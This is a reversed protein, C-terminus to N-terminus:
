RQTNGQGPFDEALILAQQRVDESIACERQIAKLADPRPLSKSFLFEVLSAAERRVLLDPGQPATEWLMVESQRAARSKDAVQRSAAAALKTGDPSFAVDFYFDGRGRLTLIEQSTLLDWVRVADNMGASALRRGDPSFAVSRVSDLHGRLISISNRTAVDWIRVTFDESATALFRGDPSFSVRRVPEVHGELIGVERGAVVDWVRVKRDAGATALLSGDPSFAVDWVRETHGHLSQIVEGTSAQRIRVVGDEGATALQQGDPSFAVGWAPAVGGDLRLLHKKTITDWVVLEAPSTNPQQDARHSVSVLRLGDPSFAIAQVRSTHGCLTQTVRGARIDWMRIMQDAVAALRTGDPSFAVKLIQEAGRARLSHSEQSCTADWIKIDGKASASALRWGNPSFAVNLVPGTHGRLCLAECGTAADWIRVTNDDGASALQLGHPCFAAGRARNHGHLRWIMSGNAADWVALSGDMGATVLSRSDSSFSVGQVIDNHAKRSIEERGTNADWVKVRGDQGATAILRGDPSYAIGLICGQKAEWTLVPKRTELYWVRVTGDGGTAALRRGDPSFAVSRITRSHESLRFAVKGAALDWVIVAKDAGAAAILRGCPSFAVSYVCGALGGLPRLEDGTLTDWVKVTHDAGGSALLRGDPSFSISWVEGDHGRLTRLDLHCLSQLYHWEFGRRDPGDPTRPVLGELRQMVMAIQGDKWAQHALRIEDCYLHGGVVNMAARTAAAESRALIAFSISVALGAVLSVVAVSAFGAVGPNRRCWRWLREPQSVPRAKIPEGALWHDLDEVLEMASGYRRSAEKQLCKLCITELDRNVAPNLHRPSVPEQELVQKLTEMSSAAHFPPRGTLVCYLVAGLSYVDSAPGVELNKGAAQEPSMYAPTGIVQGTMTLNSDSRVIKALGFDTVRPQSDSDLLVNSCKLDRHIIGRGHAYAVAEAVRKVIAAAEHPPLPRERIRAALSGGEVLGMVYFHRCEHEGVEFVPVIGPHDLQAAAEAELFFRQVEEASALQGARIMKLAVQRHLKVHWARYVVGM